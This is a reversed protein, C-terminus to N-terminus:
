LYGDVKVDTTSCPINDVFQFDYALALKPVEPRLLPLFRDYCGKGYGLRNGAKDFALGPVIVLDISKPDIATARQPDPEWIGMSSKKMYKFINEKSHIIYPHIIFSKDTYPLVLGKGSDFITDILTNTPAENRYDMYLMINNFESFKELRILRLKVEAAFHNIYDKSLENRMSLMKQRIQTKEYNLSEM